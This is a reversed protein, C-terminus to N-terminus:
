KKNSSGSLYSFLAGFFIYALVIYFGLGLALSIIIPTFIGVTNDTGEGWKGAYWKTFVWTGIAGYLFGAGVGLIGYVFLLGVDESAAGMVVGVIGLLICYFIFSRKQLTTSFESSQQNALDELQKAKQWEPLLSTFTPLPGNKSAVGLGEFAYLKEKAIRWKKENLAQQAILIIQLALNRIATEDWVDEEVRTEQKRSASQSQASESQTNQALQQDYKRREQPNTLVKRAENFLKMKNEADPSKNVDPHYKLALRRYAAEIVDTEAEHDVQLTKYYNTAM